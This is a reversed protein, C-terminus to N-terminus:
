RDGAPLTALQGGVRVLERRLEANAPDATLLPEGIALARAYAARAGATDGARAQVDGLGAHSAVLGQRVLADAADAALVEYLALARAHATRAGALDSTAMLLAGAQNLSAGLDRQARQDAPFRGALEERVTLGQQHRALAGTLDGALALGNGLRHYDGSLARRLEVNDPDAAALGERLALAQQYREVAGAAEDRLALVDGCGGQAGALDSRAAADAPDGAILGEAIAQARAYSALAGAADGARVLLAGLRLYGGSLDRQRRRDQPAAAALRERLAAAQYYHGLAGATDGTKWLADGLREHSIGLNRQAGSNAPDAAALRARSALAARHEAVAGALDGTVALLDGLTSRADNLEQEARADRPDAAALAVRIEAAQRFHALAADMAGTRILAHGVNIYSSSLARRLSERSVDTAADVLWQRLVLARQHSALVRGTARSSLLLNGIREETAAVERWAPWNAPEAAVLAEQIALAREYSALSREIQGSLTLVEGIKLHGRALALRLAGDTPRAAALRERTALAQQYSALAGPLESMRLLIDGVILQSDALDLQAQDDAPKLAALHERLALAQRHSALAGATDGLNATGAWGQVNGLRVYAEALDRLLRRDDGAEGRLRDLAVQARQVLLQRAATSGPVLAIEDHLEHLLGRALQWVADFHQEARAREAEAIAQQRLAVQTQWTTAALGGILSLLVLATAAVGAPNRRAFLSARYGLTDPRAQVPRGDLHRELDEALAAASPYRRAPEKRLAMLVIADLDGALRRQLRAPTGERLASVAAPTVQRPRGDPGVTEMVQGVAASPRAPEAECIVREWESLRGTTARQAPRGTLLEYLVLGLAYVDSATTIPEGRVQEPSAYAVTLPRPGGGTLTLRLEQAAEATLATAIGFDVLVPTGGATVLINSPKLDRHVVRHQHATQVALCVLRVLRLRQSISLHHRDCYADIPEGDIYDMVVYPLGDATEGGDRVRAIHPHDLSALIQREHRLRRALEDTPLGPAPRVLKIAVRQDFRGDVRRARYVVGMGGEGLLAELAYPGLRQGLRAEPRDVAPAPWGAPGALDALFAEDDGEAEHASLLEEVEARLAPDAGCAADLFAARAAPPQALAAEFLAKLQQYRVRSM